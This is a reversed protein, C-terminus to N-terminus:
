EGIHVARFPGQFLHGSKKYKTNFYKTYANLMKQLYKSVGGDVLEKVVLHFHNSMLSFAALEVQRKGLSKKIDEEDINFMRHQVFYSIQRFINQLTIGAQLHLILFLFRIRDRDDLFIESKLTGRNFVHYYEDPAFIVKKTPM